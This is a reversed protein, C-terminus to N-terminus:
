EHGTEQLKYIKCSLRILFHKVGGVKYAELGKYCKKFANCYAKFIVPGINKTVIPSPILVTSLTTWYIFKTCRLRRHKAPNLVIQVIYFVHFVSLSSHQKLVGGHINKM